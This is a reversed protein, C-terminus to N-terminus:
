RISIKSNDIYVLSFLAQFLSVRSQFEATYIVMFDKTTTSYSYM